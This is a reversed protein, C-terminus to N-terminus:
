DYFDAMAALKTVTRWNRATTPLAIIKEAKVALKSQAFGGPAHLYFVGANIQWFEGPQKLEDLKAKLLNVNAPEHEIFFLHLLKAMVM